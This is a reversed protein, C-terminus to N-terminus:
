VSEVDLDISHGDLQIHPNHTLIQYDVAAIDEALTVAAIPIYIGGEEPLTNAALFALEIVEPLYLISSHIWMEQIDGQYSFSTQQAEVVGPPALLHAYVTGEAATIEIEGGGFPVHMGVIPFRMPSDNNDEPAPRYGVVCGPAIYIKDDGRSTAQWPHPPTPRIDSRRLQTPNGAADVAALLYYNGGPKRAAHWQYQVTPPDTELDLYAHLTKGAAQDYTAVQIPDLHHAPTPPDAGPPIIQLPTEADDPGDLRLFLRGPHLLYIFSDDTALRRELYYAHPPAAPGNDSSSNNAPLLWTGGTAGAPITQDLDRSYQYTIPSRRPQRLLNQFDQLQLPHTPVLRLTTRGTALDTEIQQIAANMTAWETRGGTINLKKGIYQAPDAETELITVTGEYQAPTLSNYYNQALNAPIPDGPDYSAIHRYTKTIANTGTIAAHLNATRYTNAGFTRTTQFIREALARPKAPLAALGAPTIAITVRAEIPAAKRRMWSHITGSILERPYDTPDETDEDPQDDDNPWDPDDGETPVVRLTHPLIDDTAASPLLLSTLLDTQQTEDLAAYLSSLQPIHSIWWKKANTDTAAPAPIPRTKVPAYQYQINAGAIPITHILNGPAIAAAETPYKQTLIEIETNGDVTNAREFHIVVAPPVLDNRKTLNHASTKESLAISAAALSARPTANLTPPTTSYDLSLIAGPHWRLTQSLLDACSADQRPTKWTNYGTLITGKQIPIGNDAAFDIINELIAGTTTPTNDTDAGLISTTVAHTGNSYTKTEHYQLRGLQHFADRLLYDFTESQADSAVPDSAVTGIFYTTGNRRIRVTDGYQAPKTVTYDPIHITLRITTGEINTWTYQANAIGAAAFTQWSGSNIQIEWM